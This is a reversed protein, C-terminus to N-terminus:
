VIGWGAFFADLESLLKWNDTRIRVVTSNASVHFKFLLHYRPPIFVVVSTVISGDNLDDGEEEGGGGLAAREPSGAESGTIREEVEIDNSGISYWKEEEDAIAQTDRAVDGRYDEYGNSMQPHSERARKLAKKPMVIFPGLNRLVAQEVEQRPAEIVKVSEAPGGSMARIQKAREGGARWIKDLGLGPVQVVEWLIDFMIRVLQANTPRPLLSIEGLRSSDWQEFVSSVPLRLFMDQFLLQVDALPGECTRGSADNYMARVEFRTPAPNILKIPLLLQYMYPFKSFSSHSSYAGSEDMDIEKDDLKSFSDSMDKSSSLNNTMGKAKIDSSTNDRSSTGYRENITGQEVKLSNVLGSSDHDNSNEVEGDLRDHLDADTLGLSPSNVSNETLDDPHTHSLSESRDPGDDELFEASLAKAPGAQPACLFPLTITDLPVCNPSPSFELVISYIRNPFKVKSHDTHSVLGSVGQRFQIFLPLHISQPIAMTTGQEDQNNEFIRIGDQAQKQTWLAMGYASLLATRSIGRLAKEDKIFEGALCYKEKRSNEPELVMIDASGGDSLGVKKRAGLARRFDLFKIPETKLIGEFIKPRFNSMADGFGTTQGASDDSYIATLTSSYSSKQTPVSSVSPDIVGADGPPNQDLAKGCLIGTLRDKSLHTLMQLLLWAHDRTDVEGFHAVIFRLIQHLPAYVLPSPHTVLTARCLALLRRGTLWDGLAVPIFHSRQQVSPANVHSSLIERANASWESRGETDYIDLFRVLAHLTPAPNIRHELLIREMLPFYRELRRAPQLRVIFQGFSSLLFCSIRSIVGEASSDSLSGDIKGRTYVRRKILPSLGECRGSMAEATMQSGCSAYKEILQIVIPVFRPGYLMSDQLISQVSHCLQPFRLLVQFLLRFVAMTYRGQLGHYQYELLCRLSRLFNKPPGYKFGSSESSKYYIASNSQMAFCHLLAQLKAERLSLPEFVTPYLDAHNAHLLLFRPDSIIGPITSRLESKSHESSTGKGNSLHASIGGEHIRAPFCLLWQIGLLRQHVSVNCDRTMHLLRSLLLLEDQKSFVGPVANHLLIVIHYLLPSQTFAMGFFHHRFISPQLGLRSSFPVIKTIMHVLGWQSFLTSNELTLSLARTLKKVVSDFFSRTERSKENSFNGQFDLMSPPFHSCLLSSKNAPSTMVAAKAPISDGSRKVTSALQHVLGAIAERLIPTPVSGLSATLATTLPQAVDAKDETVQDAINANQPAPFYLKAVPTAEYGQHERDIRGYGYDEDSSLFEEGVSDASDYGGNEREYVDESEQNFYIDDDLGQRRGDAAESEFEDERGNNSSSSSSSNSISSGSDDSFNGNKDMSSVTGGQSGADPLHQQAKTDDVIEDEAVAHELVTLYLIAYSQSIHSREQQFFRLLSSASAPLASAPRGSLTEAVFEQLLTPYTLELERLSECAMQRLYRTASNFTDGAVSHLLVVFSQFLSPNTTITEVEILITTATVLMQGRILSSFASPHTLMSKATTFFCWMIKEDHFLSLCEEQLFVLVNVKVTDSKPGLLIELAVDLLYRRFDIVVLSDDLVGGAGHASESLQTAHSATAAINERASNLSQTPPLSPSDHENFRTTLNTVVNQSSRNQKLHTQIGDVTGDAHRGRGDRDHDFYAAVGNSLALSERSGPSILSAGPPPNGTQVARQPDQALQASDSAAAEKKKLHSSASSGELSNYLASTKSAKGQTISSDESLKQQAQSRSLRVPLRVQRALQKTGIQRTIRFWDSASQTEVSGLM